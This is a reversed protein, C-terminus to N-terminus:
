HCEIVTAYCKGAPTSTYRVIMIHTPGGKFKGTKEPDSVPSDAELTGFEARGPYPASSSAIGFLWFFEGKCEWPSPVVPVPHFEDAPVQTSTTTAPIPAAEVHVAETATATVVEVTAQSAM